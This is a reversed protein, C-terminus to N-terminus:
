GLPVTPAAPGAEVALATRSAGVAARQPLLIETTVAAVTVSEPRHPPHVELVLPAPHGLLLEALVGWPLTGAGPALHLNLRLPDMGPRGLSRRGGLNDHLHLLVVRELVSATMARLHGGTLGAVIHAHGVDLLMGISPCDLREVM